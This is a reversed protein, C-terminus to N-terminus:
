ITDETFDTSNNLNLKESLMEVEPISIDLIPSEIVNKTLTTCYCLLDIFRGNIQLVVSIEM